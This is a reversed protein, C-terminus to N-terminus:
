EKDKFQYDEFIHDTEGSKEKKIKSRIFGRGYYTIIALIITVLLISALAPKSAVVKATSIVAGTVSNVGDVTKKAANRNDEIAVDNIINTPGFIEGTEEEVADEPLIIDYTGEPVEKSLDIMLIEGPDIKIKKNILYSKGDSELIITTEDEYEVNGINEVYVINGEQRMSIKRIEDITFFSQEEIDEFQSVVEFQSVISYDGPIFSMDTDLGFTALSEVDTETIIHGDPNFIKVNIDIGDIIIDNHDYLIIKSKFSDGPVLVYEEIQNEIKSPISLITLTITKKGRNGYKDEIIIRIPVDGTEADYNLELTHELKGSIVDIEFKENNFHIEATGESLAETSQKRIDASIVIEEGPKAIINEDTAINIEDTVLFDNSSTSDVKTGDGEVFGAKIRCDGKMSEFLTLEPVTVQTRVNEEISLPSTYYQLDYDDCILRLNFFGNYDQDEKISIVPSIKDGLNYVEQDSLDLSIEAFSLPILLLFLLQWVLIGELKKM